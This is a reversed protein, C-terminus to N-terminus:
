GEKLQACLQKHGKKWDKRQCEKSCYQAYICGACELLASGNHCSEAGCEFCTDRKLSLASLRPEPQSVPGQEQPNAKQRPPPPADFRMAVHPDAINIPSAFIVPIAVRTALKCIDKPRKIHKLYDVPFVGIGCTCMYREGSGTSTPVCKAVKYECTSKHKWERCRESFGPLIHKWFITENEEIQLCVMRDRRKGIVDAIPMMDKGSHCQIFAADAFYTQNSLDMRVSDVYLLGFESFQFVALQEYNDAGVLNTYISKLTEKVGLRGPMPLHDYRLFMKYDRFEEASMTFTASALEDIWATSSPKPGIHLKPLIDPSVYHLQELSVESRSM